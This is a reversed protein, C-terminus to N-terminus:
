ARVSYNNRILYRKIQKTAMEKYHFLNAASVASAGHDLGAAFHKDLSAGGFIIIPLNCEETAIKLSELDYGGRNGDHDINNIFLEGAGYKECHPIWNKLLQNTNLRGRDVHVIKKGDIDKVDISAVICQRGFKDALLKPVEPQDYFSSNLILKDAGKKILSAGYDTSNILGGVTLPVWCVRSVNEIIKLFSERTGNDHSVNIVVIEDVNWRSFTEIAHIADYHIVHNHKFKESQVVRGDRVVIVAIIRNKTM